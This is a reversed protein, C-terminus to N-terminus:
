SCANGGGPLHGQEQYVAPQQETNSENLGAEHVAEAAGVPHLEVWPNMSGSVNDSLAQAHSDLYFLLDADSLKIQAGLHDAASPTPRIHRNALLHARATGASPTTLALPVLQRASREDHGCDLGPQPSIYLLAIMLITM